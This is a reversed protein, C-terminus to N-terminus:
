DIAVQQDLLRYIGLKISKRKSLLFTSHNTMKFVVCEISAKVLLCLDIFRSFRELLGDIGILTILRRLNYAIFIFGVDASAHKMTKKTMIHDFGWQRKMTGFPREVISQRQRYIEPREEQARKNKELSEAFEHRDNGDLTDFLGKIM